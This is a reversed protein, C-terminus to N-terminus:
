MNSGLILPTWFFRAGRCDSVSLPHRGIEPLPAGSISTKSTFHYDESPFSQSHVSRAFQAGCAPGASGWHLGWHTSSQEFVASNQKRKEKKPIRFVLRPLACRQVSPEHCGLQQEYRRQKSGEICQRDMTNSLWALQLHLKKRQLSTSKQYPSM